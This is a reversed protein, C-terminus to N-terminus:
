PSLARSILQHTIDPDLEADTVPGLREDLTLKDTM